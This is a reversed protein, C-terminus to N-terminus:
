YVLKAIKGKGGAFFVSNGSKSKKCVNFGENSILKWTNGDNTSYDVGTLGCTIWNNKKLYEICSRYGHPGSVPYTWSKGGDKTICCVHTASDPFNFDGGVVIMQKKNKLGISNAGESDKGQMIPLDNAISNDFFRSRMGGTIYYYKGHNLIRINTGSSAFCAEGNAVEPLKIHDLSHWTDGGDLTEAIFLKHGVPDGVVMGYKRDVFDMADLFMSTDANQYVIKWSNGGDTTKLIYAPSSIAMIIATSESFAEIDRFDKKEFGKVNTWNWTIGGDVSRGVSGNSGSVWIIKNSVVSLGRLSAQSGSNLIKVTQASVSMWGIVMFFIM